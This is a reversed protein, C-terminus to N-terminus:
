ADSEGRALWRMFLGTVAITLLTSVFLAVSIPLLSEGLLQFHLMIGTGAPVFLLSMYRLLTGSVADLDDPIAGRFLLYVFLCVMGVVPGPVPLALAGVIFEGALQCAFVLTLYGLM